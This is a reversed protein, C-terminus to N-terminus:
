TAASPRSSLRAAVEPELVRDAGLPASRSLPAHDNSADQAARALQLTMTFCAGGTDRNSVTIEGGHAEVIRKVISLGLGAGGAQQRDRRWFRKFLQERKAIPVGEGCDLVTVSGNDGVVIEVETGPPTHKLANEVLNRVARALMEPNGRVIVPVEASSLSITKNQKIGLPALFAAIETCIAHIDATEEPEIIITEIEAADLLQSVIRSMNDIDQKLAKSAPDDVLMDVRTRLIALPTRLEHAADAAFERQREFGRELRGLAENIAAVLPLIESPIDNTPLRVDTRTPSIQAAQDSARLLPRMARRFILYDSLLLLLLIPVAVWGVQPLINAVVDDLLVDRHALDEGVQIWIPAGQFEKRLTVGSVSHNGISTDFFEVESEPNEVPALPSRDQRSSFLTVGNKDFVAYFYRGYAESFQDRLGSSLELSWVGNTSISLRRAFAEAQNRQAQQRLVDIDYTLFWYVALPILLATIALAVVHLLMIRALISNARLM